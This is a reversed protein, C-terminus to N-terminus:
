ALQSVRTPSDISELSYCGRFAEDGISGVGDPILVSGIDACELFARDDIATIRLEVDHQIAAPIVIDGEIDDCGIVTAQDGSISFTLHGIRIAEDSETTGKM